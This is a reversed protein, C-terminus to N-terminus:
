SGRGARAAVVVSAKVTSGKPATLSTTIGFRVFTADTGCLSSFGCIKSVSASRVARTSHFSSKGTCTWLMGEIVTSVLVIVIAPVDVSAFGPSRTM